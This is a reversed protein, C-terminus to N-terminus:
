AAKASERLRRIQDMSIRAAERVDGKLVTDYYHFSEYEVSM